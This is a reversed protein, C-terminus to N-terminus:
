NSKKEGALRVLYMTIVAVVLTILIAYIFKAALSNGQVPFFYEILAKIAENWALGAVLGFAAVIYGLTKEKAERQLQSGESRVIEFTKKLVM